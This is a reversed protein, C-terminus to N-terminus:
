SCRQQCRFPGLPLGRMGSAIAVTLTVIFITVKPGIRDGLLGGPLALFLGGFTTMGWIFGFQATSLNLDRGIMPLLVPTSFVQITTVLSILMLFVLIVWTHLSDRVAPMQPSGGKNDKNYTTPM